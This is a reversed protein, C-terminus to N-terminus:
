LPLVTLCPWAERHAEISNFSFVTGKPDCGQVELKFCARDIWKSPIIRINDTVVVPQTTVTFIHTSNM